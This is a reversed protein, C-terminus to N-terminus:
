GNYLRVDLIARIPQRARSSQLTWSDPSAPIATSLTEGSKFPVLASFTSTATSGSCVRYALVFLISSLNRLSRSKKRLSKTSFCSTYVAFTTCRTSRWCATRILELKRPRRSSSFRWGRCRALDISFLRTQQHVCPCLLSRSIPFSSWRLSLQPPIQLTAASEFVLTLLEPTQLVQLLATMKLKTTFDTSATRPRSTTIAYREEKYIHHLTAPDDDHLHSL